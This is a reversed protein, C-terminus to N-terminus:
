SHVRLAPFACVVLLGRDLESESESEPDSYMLAAAM